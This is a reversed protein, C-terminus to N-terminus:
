EALFVKCNKVMGKPYKHPPTKTSLTNSGKIAASGISLKHITNNPTPFPEPAAKNNKTIPTKPANDQRGNLNFLFTQFNSSYHTKASLATWHKKKM